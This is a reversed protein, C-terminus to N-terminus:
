PRERNPAVEILAPPERANVLRERATVTRNTSGASEAGERHNQTPMSFSGSETRNEPRKPPM